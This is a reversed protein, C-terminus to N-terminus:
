DRYGAQLRDPDLLLWYIYIGFYITTIAVMCIFSAIQIWLNPGLLVGSMFLLENLAIIGNVPKMVHDKHTITKSTM